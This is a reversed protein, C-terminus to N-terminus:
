LGCKKSLLICVTTQTRNEAINLTHTKACMLDTLPM